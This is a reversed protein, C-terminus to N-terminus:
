DQFHVMTPHISLKNISKDNQLYPQTWYVEDQNTDVSRPDYIKGIGVVNDNNQKFHQPLTIIDPNINRIQTKLDWVKTRDPCLGTLLSARSAASIAQQCYANNFITGKSAIADINPTIAVKDGYCGLIPKLDDVAIFLINKKEANLNQANISGSTAM